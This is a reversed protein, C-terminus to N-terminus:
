ADKLQLYEEYDAKSFMIEFTKSKSLNVLKKPFDMFLIVLTKHTAWERVTLVNLTVEEKLEDEETELVM